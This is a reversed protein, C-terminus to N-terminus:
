GAGIPEEVADQCTLQFGTQQLQEFSRPSSSVVESLLCTQSILYGGGPRSSAGLWRVRLILDLNARNAANVGADATIQWLAKEDLPLSGYVAQIAQRSLAPEAAKINSLWRQTEIWNKGTLAQRVGAETAQLLKYAKTPPLEGLHIRTVFASREFSDALLNPYRALTDQILFHFQFWSSILGSILFLLVLDQRGAAGPTGLKLGPQIFRPYAAFAASLIPWSIVASRWSMIIFSNSLLALCAIMGTIWPGYQLKFGILPIQVQKGLLAWDIGVILFVWAFVSILKKAYVGDMLLYVFWSFLSLLLVAEWSFPKVANLWDQVQKVRRRVQQGFDRLLFWKLLLNTLKNM